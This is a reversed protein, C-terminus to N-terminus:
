DKHVWSNLHFIIESLIIIWIFDIETVKYDIKESIENDKSVYMLYLPFLWFLLLWTKDVFIYMHM